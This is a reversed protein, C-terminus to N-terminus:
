NAPSTVTLSVAPATSTSGTNSSIVGNSDVGMLTFTYNGDPTVGNPTSTSATSNGCAPVLSLAACMLFLSLVMWVRRSRPGPKVTGFAALALLPLPIWLAYFMRPAAGPGAGTIVPGFTSITITATIPEGNIPVPASFSCVPPITVLPTITACSLVIGPSGPPSTYGNIPNVTVTGTSGNGAPVSSPEVARDVTITFQPTVALVTLSLAVPAPAPGNSPVATITVTYGVTSTGLDTSTPATTTVTASASAPPTVTSPSVTCVPPDNLTTVTSTVACGLEVTGSFGNVSGVTITSFSNGGPAVADPTFAAAALTANQAVAAHSLALMAVWLWLISIGAATAQIRSKSQLSEPKLM